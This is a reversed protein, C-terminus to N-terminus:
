GKYDNTRAGEKGPMAVSCDSISASMLAICVQALAGSAARLADSMHACPSTAEVILEVDRRTSHRHSSLHM